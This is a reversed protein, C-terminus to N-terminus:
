NIARMDRAKWCQWFGGSAVNVLQQDWYKQHLVLGCFNYGLTFKKVDSYNRGYTLKIEVQNVADCPTSSASLDYILPASFCRTLRGLWQLGKVEVFLTAMTAAVIRLKSVFFCDYTKVCCHVMKNQCNRSVNCITYSAPSFNCINTILCGM